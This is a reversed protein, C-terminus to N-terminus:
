CLIYNNSCITYMIICLYMYTHTYIGPLGPKGQIGDDGPLGTVGQDGVPGPIVPIGNCDTSSETNRAVRSEYSYLHDSVTDKDFSPKKMIYDYFEDASMQNELGFNNYLETITSFIHGVERIHRSLKNDSPLPCGGLGRPGPPGPRGRLGPLGQDGRPGPFGKAGNPGINGSYYM